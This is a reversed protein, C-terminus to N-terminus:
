WSTYKMMCFIHSNYPYQCIWFVLNYNSRFIMLFWAVYFFTQMSCFLSTSLSISFSYSFYLPISFSISLSFFLFACLEHPLMLPGDMLPLTPNVSFNYSSKPGEIVKLTISILIFYKRIWIILIWIIKILISEYIFTNPLIKKFERFSLCLSPFVYLCFSLNKKHTTSSSM